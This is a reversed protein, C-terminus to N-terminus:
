QDRRPTRGPIWSSKCARAGRIDGSRSLTKAKAKMLRQEGDKGDGRTAVMPGQAYGGFSDGGRFRSHPLTGPKLKPSSRMM